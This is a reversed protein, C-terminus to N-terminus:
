PLACRVYVYNNLVPVTNSINDWRWYRGTNSSVASASWAWGSTHPPIGNSAGAFTPSADSPYDIDSTTTTATEFLAPLRMGKDSCTKINGVYWRAEGANYNAWSNLGITSATNQTTGAAYLLQFNYGVSYYLCNGSSVRNLDDIYVSPPCKRGELSTYDTFENGAGVLHGKGDLNLKMAWEDLGNARLIRSSGVEKWVKFSGSATVYEVSKGLPTTVAGAAMAATNQYCSDGPGGCSGDWYKYNVSANSAASYARDANYAYVKYFYTTGDVVNLDDFTAATGKYIVEDGGISDGQDYNTGYSPYFSVPTSAHRVIIVGNGGTRTWSLLVKGIGNPASASFSSVSLSSPDFSGVTGFISVGSLLLGETIKPEGAFTYRSGASDFWEFAASSKMKTNFTATDLDAVGGDAGALRHSASPYAGTIGAITAGSRINAPVANAIAAAKYNTGDVVCGSAGDSACNAPAEMVHGTVGAITIGSKINSAVVHDMAAAKYVTGDVVCSGAGDSTCAPGYAGSVGAITAGNKINTAGALSIDAARYSESTVCGVEGDASCFALLGHALGGNCLTLTVNVPIEELRPDKCDGASLKPAMPPETAQGPPSSLDEVAVDFKTDCAMACLCLGLAILNTLVRKMSDGM